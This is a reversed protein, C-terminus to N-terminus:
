GLFDLIYISVLGLLIIVFFGATMQWFDRDFYKM